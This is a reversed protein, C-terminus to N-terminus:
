EAESDHEDSKIDKTHTECSRKGDRTPLNHSILDDAALSNIRSHRRPRDITDHDVFTVLDLRQAIQGAPFDDKHANWFGRCCADKSHHCVRHGQMFGRKDRIQDELRKLDLSSDKRYICTSCPKSQVNFM